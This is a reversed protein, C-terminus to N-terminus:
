TERSRESEKIMTKKVEVKELFTVGWNEYHRFTSEAEAQDDFRLASIPTTVQFYTEATAEREAETGHVIISLETQLGEMARQATSREIASLARDDLILAARLIGELARAEHMTVTMEVHEFNTTGCTFQRMKM